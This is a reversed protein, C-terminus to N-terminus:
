FPPNCFSRRFACHVAHRDTIELGLDGAQGLLGADVHEDVASALREVDAFGADQPVTDPAIQARVPHTRADVGEEVIGLTQLEDDGIRHHLRQGELVVEDLLPGRAVVDEQTVILVIGVQLQRSALRKRPHQDRPPHLAVVM